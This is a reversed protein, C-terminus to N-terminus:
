YTTFFKLSGVSEKGPVSESLNNRFFVPNVLNEALGSDEPHPVIKGLTPTSVGAM